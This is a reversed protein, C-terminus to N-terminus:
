EDVISVWQMVSSLITECFHKMSQSGENMVLKVAAREDEFLTSTRVFRQRIQNLTVLNDYAYSVKCVQSM